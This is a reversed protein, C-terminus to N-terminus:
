QQKLCIEGLCWYDAATNEDSDKRPVPRTVTDGAKWPNFIGSLWVQTGNDLTLQSNDGYWHSEKSINVIHGAPTKESSIVEDHQKIKIQAVIVLLVALTILVVFIRMNM